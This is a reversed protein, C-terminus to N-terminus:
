ATTTSSNATTDIEATKQEASVPALGWGSMGHAWGRTADPFILNAVAVEIWITYPELKALYPLILTRLFMALSHHHQCHHRFHWFMETRIIVTKKGLYNGPVPLSRAARTCILYPQLNAWHITRAYNHKSTITLLPPNPSLHFTDIALM